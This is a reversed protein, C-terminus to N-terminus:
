DYFRNKNELYNEVQNILKTLVFAVGLFLSIYLVTAISGPLYKYFFDYRSLIPWHILYIEYSYLGFIELFIIKFNKIIFILLLCILTVISISQEILPKEGVGSHISYYLFIGLLFPLLFWKFKSTNLKEIVPFKYFFYSLVIGLPFAVIHLKYINIVDKNIPLNINLLELSLIYILIASIIPFRKIFVLPFILYYFLIATFYWLPSDIDIFLDARPFFGFFSQVIYNLSYYRNLIFLDAIFFIILTIWFPILLKELRKKYFGIISQEKKLASFTLGFGSVFLFINVGVGALISLPYLFNQGSILFYGIHSFIIALMAFGKLEGTLSVDFFGGTKKRLTLLIVPLFIVIFILTQPQPNQINIQM